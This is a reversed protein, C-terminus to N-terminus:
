VIFNDALTVNTATVNQLTTLTVSFSDGGGNSDINVQTHAGAQLLQVYGAAIPDAGGYGLATLLTDIDLKDGGAGATFDTITDGAETLANYDFLEIGAGGTLTDNGSGGTLTDAGDNGNLTNNGSNGFIKNALTNGTGVSKGAGTLTLNEVNTALTHSTSAYVTDEGAAAGETVVDGAANVSYTDNGAGGIMTDNGTGGNLKNNGSNGTLQNALSNGNGSSNVVGTLTLNEVNAGLTHSISTQVLDTGAGTNEIVVDGAANVIYLDNDSGGSLTDNGMGGDLTDDDGGGNLINNGSNGTLQNALSNGSATANDSGTLTLHEVNAALAYSISSQVSDAGAAVDETVVDGAATIIYLDNDGGGSLTDSGMGGDLTDDGDGGNLKNNGRNGTLRNALENGNGISNGAGTLTLREVNATLTYSIAANVTDVGANAAETVVDGAANVSYTDNGAGGIMTDNGSGGNLRNNGNGGTLQNALSNGNATTNASTALTLQEVNAALTHSLFAQVSDIGANVDEMVVDGAGVHYQDNGGGGILTDDGNSGILTDNGAGGDLQNAASNGTLTDNYNSGLLHEITLLTDIGAGGTNQSTTAFLNVTVASGAGSYYAWDRGNGGTLSENGSGGVLTDDGSGGAMEIGNAGEWTLTNAGSDGTLQTVIGAINGAADYRQAYIGYGSGGPANTHWTAVFGGDALAAVASGAQDNATTTNVRFETGQAAGNADYRQAYIDNSSGSGDQTISQWTVVFGGNALATIAPNEQWSATTTNVRFEAGQAAGSADYRQAYIDYGSGDFSQWTVVFGGSAIATIAPQVQSSAVTTNVRFEAGQAVGNADYRQAYIGYASGDQHNSQWTVVFGGSAIATIATYEQGFATTTNVRFEVGLAAGNADYRQAYIGDTFGDLSQWTVVFGGSAIATIAPQVQSSAVTTNVRFEAGQAVGNADYRQAYIGYFSGDQVYSQWTVVFGGGGLATIASHDQSEVTKTNVRFEAGQVAGNADYRQAYIDSGSGSGDQRSSRWTMVFGGNALSTVASQSSNIATTTDVRFESTFSIVGDPFSVKDVGTLTDVGDSGNSSDTDTVVFNPGARSFSYGSSPGGYVATDIGAGGDLFDNGAGGILRDNGALGSLTDDGATGGLNTDNGSTGTITDLTLTYTQRTGLSVVLDAEISGSDAELVWNGGLAASGTSDNSAAVDAGTHLALNEIFTQGAVGSAVECGYLLIDGSQTLAAGITELESSYGALNDSTLVANGLYLTGESGHSIIHIADLDSVGELAQAIQEVGDQGADLIVVILEPSLGALLKDIDQLSSDIFVYASM